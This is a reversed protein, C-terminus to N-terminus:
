RSSSTGAPTRPRSRARPEPSRLLYDKLLVLLYLGGCLVLTAVLAGELPLSRKIPTAIVGYVMEVHIWYVFLSSRGLAEIAALRPAIWALPVLSTVLGLRIVFFTPSSTWFSSGAYLSPRFSALYGLLVGVVGACMLGLQLRVEISRVRAADVVEGVLAGGFLFGAWPFLTFTTRGPSPRFYWEVPAPLWDLWRTERILPTALTVLATAVAFLVIRTTRSRGRAWLWAAAVMSLGMVNLIDVKLMNIWPGWGLLQAQLRFLFALGFVWWGHRLAATAASEAGQQGARRSAAMSTSVGALFLFLPAAMGAVFIAYFYAQGHRDAERTWADVVHAEVMTVVALGRLLDLYSKRPATATM